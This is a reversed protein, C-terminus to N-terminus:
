DDSGFIREFDANARAIVERMTNAKGIDLDGIALRMRRARPDAPSATTGCTPEIPEDPHQNRVM